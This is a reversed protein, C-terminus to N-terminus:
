LVRYIFNYLKHLVSKWYLLNNNSRVKIKDMLDEKVVMTINAVSITVGDSKVGHLLGQFPFHKGNCVGDLRDVKLQKARM